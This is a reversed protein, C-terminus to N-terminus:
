KFYHEGVTVRANEEIKHFEEGDERGKAFSLRKDLLERLLRYFM